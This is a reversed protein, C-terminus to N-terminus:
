RFDPYVGESTDSRVNFIIETVEETELWQLQCGMQWNWTTTKGITVFHPDDQMDFFGVEAVEKGTLDATMMPVRNSLLFRGSRDWTSKNYYGFFQHPTGNGVLRVPCIHDVPKSM